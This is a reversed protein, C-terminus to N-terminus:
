GGPQIALALLRGEEESMLKRTLSVGLEASGHSSTARLIDSSGDPAGDESSESSLSSSRKTKPPMPDGTDDERGVLVVPEFDRESERGGIELGGL